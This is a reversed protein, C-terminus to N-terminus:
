GAITLKYGIARSQINVREFVAAFGQALLGGVTALPATLAHAPAALPVLHTGTHWLPYLAAPANVHRSPMQRFVDEQM